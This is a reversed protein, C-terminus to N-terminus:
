GVMQGCYVLMVSLCVVTRDSLMPRLDGLLGHRRTTQNLRARRRHMTHTHTVWTLVRQNGTCTHGDGSFGDRCRCRDVDCVGHRHCAPYYHCSQSDCLQCQGSGKVCENVGAVCLCVSLCVSVCRDLQWSRESWKSCVHLRSRGLMDTYIVLLEEVCTLWAVSRGARKASAHSVLREYTILWEPWSLRRGEAPRSILVPYLATINQPQSKFANIEKLLRM